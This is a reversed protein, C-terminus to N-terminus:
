TGSGDIVARSASPVEAQSILRFRDKGLARGLFPRTRTVEFDAHIPQKKDGQEARSRSDGTGFVLKSPVAIGVQELTAKLHGVRFHRLCALEVVWKRKGIGDGYSPDLWLM